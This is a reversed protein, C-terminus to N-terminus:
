HIYTILLKSKPSFFLLSFLFNLYQFRHYLICLPNMTESVKSTKSTTSAEGVDFDVSGSGRSIHAEESSYM